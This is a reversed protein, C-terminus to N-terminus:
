SVFYIKLGSLVSNVAVSALLLGTVRSVANAGSEGILRQVTSAFVMFFYAVGIVALIIMIIEFQQIIGGQTKETQMVSALIAGPGALSPVALPFVAVDLSQDKLRKESEPKGEGFIMTLAVLFLVVGGAIQFASLPINMATLIPEGVFVFFVLIVSAVLAARIAVLQRMKKTMGTTVSIFVPVTGVPDIVAFFFIFTSLWDTMFARLM